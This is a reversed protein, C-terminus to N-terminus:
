LALQESARLSFEKIYLLGEGSYERIVAEIPPLEADTLRKAQPYNESCVAPQPPHNKNNEVILLEEVDKLWPHIEAHCDDCLAVINKKSNSGGHQLQIIHHRLRAWLGCVFCRKDRRVKWAVFKTRAVKRLGKKPKSIVIEAFEKLRAMREEATMDHKNCRSWFRTLESELNLTAQKAREMARLHAKHHRSSRKIYNAGVSM